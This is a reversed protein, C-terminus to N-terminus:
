LTLYEKQSFNWKEYRQLPHRPNGHKTLTGFYYIKIGMDKLMNILHNKGCILTNINKDNGWAGWVEKIGNSELFEKIIQLNKNSLSENFPKINKADTAREPYTNLVVWGDMELIQSIKIIRNITRDSTTEKAASPNMCIAVLPHTGLKGLLFRNSSYETPNILNPEQGNPYKLIHNTVKQNM